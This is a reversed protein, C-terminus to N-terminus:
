KICGFYWEDYEREFSKYDKGYLNFRLKETRTNSEIIRKNIKQNNEMSLWMEFLLIKCQKLKENLRHVDQEASIGLHQVPFESNENIAM